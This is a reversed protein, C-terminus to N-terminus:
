SCNPFLLDSLSAYQQLSMQEPRITASLEQQALSEIIIDKSLHLGSSIANAATKRRQSFAARIVQFMKEENQPCVFRNKHLKLQIVASTVKPSPFFSGPQVSFLLEPQAYYHVAYTVAGAKRTGPQACLREAAEKQVMVTLHDIELKEELVKMLIPSTIYYPLNACIAVKMGTFEQKIVAALDIKMVDGMLLHFNSYEKLTEKLIEPLRTDIEISVVKKAKKCLEKTLVGIGPGIELVGYSDDIEAYEVIKPCISPNIIFNQGFGKSTSFHYKECLQKIVSLNTLEM